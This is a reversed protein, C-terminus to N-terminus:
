REYSSQRFLSFMIAHDSDVLVNLRYSSVKEQQGSVRAAAARARVVPPDTISLQYARSLLQSTSPPTTFLDRFDKKAVRLPKVLSTASM